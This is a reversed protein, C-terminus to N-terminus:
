RVGKREESSREKREGREERRDGKRKQCPKVIYVM